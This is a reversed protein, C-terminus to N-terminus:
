GCIGRCAEWNGCRSCQGDRHIRVRTGVCDHIAEGAALLEMDRKSRFGNCFSDYIVADEPAGTWECFWRCEIEFAVQALSQGRWTDAAIGAGKIPKGSPDEFQFRITRGPQLVWDVKAPKGNQPEVEKMAPAYGDATVTLLTSEAPLGAMKFAGDADTTAKPSSSSFGDHGSVVKANAVPTQDASRVTGAIAWGSELAYEQDLGSRVEFNLTRSSTTGSEAYRLQSVPRPAADLKWRGDPGTTKM